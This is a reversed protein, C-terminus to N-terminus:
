LGEIEPWGNENLDALVKARTSLPLVTNLPFAEYYGDALALLDLRKVFLADRTAPNYALTWLGRQIEAYDVDRNKAEATLMAAKYRDLELIYAVPNPM